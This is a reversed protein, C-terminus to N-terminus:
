DDATLEENKMAANSATEEEEVEALLERDL